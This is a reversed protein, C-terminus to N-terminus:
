AAVNQLSPGYKVGPPNETRQGYVYVTMGLDLHDRLFDMDANTVRVCGHSAPYGPVSPSGHIAYGGRFYYPKYMAGLYSRHHYNRQMYFSYKGEPTQARVARGTYNIFTGGNGSSVPLVAQVQHNDVLYLVQKGLDIEIRDAEERLRVTAAQDLLDWDDPRFIGDRELDHQKQFAMVAQYTAGGFEGDVEGPRFGARELRQQLFEVQPGRDGPELAVVAGLEVVSPDPAPGEGPPFVTAGVSLLIAAIIVPSPHHEVDPM